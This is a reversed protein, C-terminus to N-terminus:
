PRAPRLTIGTQREITTIAHDDQTCFYWTFLHYGNIKLSLRKTALEWLAQTQTTLTQWATAAQTFRDRQRTQRDTPPSKPPSRPFFVITGNKKTYWTLPGM